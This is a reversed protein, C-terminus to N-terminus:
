ADDDFEHQKLAQASSSSSSTSAIANQVDYADFNSVNAVPQAVPKAVRVYKYQVEQTADFGLQEEDPEKTTAKTM